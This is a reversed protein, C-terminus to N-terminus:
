VIKSWTTGNDYLIIHAFPAQLVTSISGDITGQVTITKSGACDGTEDKIILQRGPNSAAPLTVIRNATLTRYAVITDGDTVTHNTDSVGTRTAAVPTALALNLFATSTYNNGDSGGGGGGGASTITYAISTSTSATFAGPDAPTFEATLTHAGVSLGTTNTTAVSNSVAIAAVTTAGDKFAVSGATGAPSVTATLTVTSGSTATSAPSAVLAISTQTQSSGSNIVYNVAASSSGTYSNTDSPVFTATLSHSGALLTSLVLSSSGGSVGITDLVTAGDRFVVAGAVAPSVTATLTVSAGLNAPSSPSVGLSTSTSTAASTSGQVASWWLLNTKSAGYKDIYQNDGMIQLASINAFAANADVLAQAAYTYGLWGGPAFASGTTANDALIAPYAEQMWTKPLLEHSAPTFPLTEIGVLIDDSLGFWTGNFAKNAFLLPIVKQQAFDSPYVTNYSPMQWYLQAAMTEMSQLWRGVNRLDTQGTALGWLNIGYWANVAESTSEQNRGDGNAQLGAAWSHGEYWDFHRLQTFYPDGAPSPNAIDRIIDNVPALHETAWASDFRAIVAAGYIFYGWHFYHDNYVPNGFGTAQYPDNPPSSIYAGNDLVGGWSTDYLLSVPMGMSASRTLWVSLAEEMKDIIEDRTANEGLQHAILALRGARSIQKGFIYAETADIDSAQLNKEVNLANLIASVKNSDIAQPSDWTITSLAQTTVWTNGSVAKLTGRITPVTIGSIYSPSSFTQEHHPLCYTLLTSGSGIKGYTFTTTATNGAVSVSTSGGIPVADKYTDLIAEEEPTGHPVIAVRIYGTFPATAVFGADSVNFTISSSAYVVWKETAGVGLYPRSVNFTFKTGTVSGAPASGNVLTIAHYETTDTNITPTLQNYRMTVYPMGKVIPATMYHSADVSWKLTASLQDFSDLYRSAITETSKLTLDIYRWIAPSEASTWGWNTASAHYNIQHENRITRGDAYLRIFPKNFALGDNQARTMYPWVTTRRDSRSDIMDQMGTLVYDMFWANTPYPFTINPGWWSSSPTIIKNTSTGFGPAATSIPSDFAM